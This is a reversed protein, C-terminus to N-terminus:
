SANTFLGYQRKRHSVMKKVVVHETGYLDGILLPSGVHHNVANKGVTEFSHNAYCYLCHHRCTHYAGIDVSEACGCTTRQSPDKRVHIEEGIIQSILRDDICRSATIETDALATDEACTELKMSHADTIGMMTQLLSIRDEESGEVVPIDKMNRKCKQYMDLFSTICKHTYGRLQEALDTFRRIHFSIDMRGTFVIPDYRWIVKQAGITESLRKFCAVIEDKRPVKREIDRDYPTVTFLFYYQYGFADIEKLRPLLNKPNKTWFVICEIGDPTLPIRSILNRNFPNRVYVFGARMRNLLWEAYFAPIDTRRSASIIM